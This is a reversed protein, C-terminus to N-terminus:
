GPVEELEEVDSQADLAEAEDVDLSNLPESALSVDPLNAVAQRVDLKGSVVDSVLHNRYERILEIEQLARAAPRDYVTVAQDLYAVIRDQEARPPVLVLLAKVDAVNIRSFTSGVQFSALQSAMFDSHLLYNLYRNDQDNSRIMCVDQGMAFDVDTDVYAAAGVSVNRCYIIDGRHPRRGGDTLHDYWDQTTKRARSLDLEFRQVERVSALPIGDDVFPVTVHKCDIVRWYRKLPVFAWHQPVDGLWQVGSSKLPVQPDLGRIVVRSIVAQRQETLAAVMRRKTQILRSVQSDLYSVYRVIASQDEVPPVLVPIRRMRHISLDWQAPRVGDSAQGFFDVYLRSRLLRHAFPIELGRLEFVYYAPSVIGDVPAIGLSGQWAKMKNIVLDGTRAFQYNSLDDPVYNHNEVLSLSDRRIVGKDRVVSLLPLDARNRVSRRSTIAGLSIVKWSSPVVGLWPHGSSKVNPYAHLRGLM